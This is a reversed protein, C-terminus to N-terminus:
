GAAPPMVLSVGMLVSVGLVIWPWYRTPIFFLSGASPRVEIRQGTAEDVFVRAEGGERWRAFFFTAVAGILGGIIFGAGQKTADALGLLPAVGEAIAVGAILGLAAFVVVLIGWGSWVIM